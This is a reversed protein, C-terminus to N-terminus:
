QFFSSILSSFLFSSFFFAGGGIGFFFSSNERDSGFKDWDLDFGSTLIISRGGVVVLIGRSGVSIAVSEFLFITGDKGGFNGEFVLLVRLDKPYM